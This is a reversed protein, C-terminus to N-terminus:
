TRTLRSPNPNETRSPLQEKVLVTPPIIEKVLYNAVPGSVEYDDVNNAAFNFYLPFSIAFFVVGVVLIQTRQNTKLDDMFAM